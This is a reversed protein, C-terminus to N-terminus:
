WKGCKVNGFVTPFQKLVVFHGFNSGNKQIPFSGFRISFVVEFFTNKKTLSLRKKEINGFLPLFHENLCM